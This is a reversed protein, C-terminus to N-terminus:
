RWCSGRWRSLAHVVVLWKPLPLQKWHYGLNM